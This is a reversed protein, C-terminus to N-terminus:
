DHIRHFRKSSGTTEHEPNAVAELDQTFRSQQRAGQYAVAIQIKNTLVDRHPNLSRVRRVGVFHSRSRHQSNRNCMGFSVIYAVIRSKCFELAFVPDDKTVTFRAPGYSCRRVWIA